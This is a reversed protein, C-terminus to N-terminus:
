LHQRRTRVGLGYLVPDPYRQLFCVGRVQIEADPVALSRLAERFPAFPTRGEPGGVSGGSGKKTAVGRCSKADTRAPMSLSEGERTLRGCSHWLCIAGAKTKAHNRKRM